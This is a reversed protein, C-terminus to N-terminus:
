KFLIYSIFCERTGLIKGERCDDGQQKSGVGDRRCRNKDHNKDRVPSCCMAKKNKISTKIQYPLFLFDFLQAM